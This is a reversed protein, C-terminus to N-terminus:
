CRGTRRLSGATPPARRRPMGPTRAAPWRLRSRDRRAGRRQWSTDPCSDEHSGSRDRRASALRRPCTTQQQWSGRTRRRLWRAQGGIGLSTPKGASGLSQLGAARSMPMPLGKLSPTNPVALAHQFRPGFTGGLVAFYSALDLHAFGASGVRTPRAAVSGLLRFHFANVLRTGGPHVPNEPGM